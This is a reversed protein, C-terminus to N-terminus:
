IPRAPACKGFTDMGFPGPLETGSVASSFPGEARGARASLWHADFVADFVGTVRFLSFPLICVFITFVFYSVPAPFLAQHM